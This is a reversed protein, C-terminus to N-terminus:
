SHAYMKERMLKICAILKESNPINEKVIPSNKFNSFRSYLHPFKHAEMVKLQNLDEITVLFKIVSGLAIDVINIHDGNFFKQDILCQNDIVKLHKQVREIAKERVEDDTIIHFLPKVAPIMQDAYAVWFRAQARDYPDHPVLPNQPWVEDVYEVIIMSECISKGHHVLVPTLKHVPNYELLQPSKNFRDEEIYEYTIGKLKLTLIVRLTLPSYWFGHLKLEAM